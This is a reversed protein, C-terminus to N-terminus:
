SGQFSFYRSQSISVSCRLRLLVALGSSFFLVEIALNFGSNFVVVTAQDDNDQFSFYRSQSISVQCRPQSADDKRERSSFFLVEIALNFSPVSASVVARKRQSHVQFSFYRSQSISVKDPLWRRLDRHRKFLFTGRNRSQFM